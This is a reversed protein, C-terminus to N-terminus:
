ETHRAEATTPPGKKGYLWRTFEADLDREYVLHFAERADRGAAQARFFELLRPMGYKKRLHRMWGDALRYERWNWDASRAPNRFNAEMGQYTFVTAKLHHRAENRVNHRAVWDYDGALMTALGEESVADMTGYAIRTALHVLEHVHCEETSIVRWVGDSETFLTGAAYRQGIRAVDGQTKVRLYAFQPVSVGFLAEVEALKRDCPASRVKLSPTDALVYYGARPTTERLVFEPSVAVAMLLALFM